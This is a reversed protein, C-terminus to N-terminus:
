PNQSTEPLLKYIDDEESVPRAIVKAKEFVHSGDILIDRHVSPRFTLYQEDERLIHGYTQLRRRGLPYNGVLKM